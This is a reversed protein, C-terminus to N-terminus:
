EVGEKVVLPGRGVKPSIKLELEVDNVLWGLAAGRDYGSNMDVSGRRSPEDLDDSSMAVVWAEVAGACIREM